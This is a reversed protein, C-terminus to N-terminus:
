LGQQARTQVLYIEKGVCVGEVDQPRSYEGELFDAIRALREGLRVAANRDASLGVRSYDLREAVTGAGASAPKLALSFSACSRLRVEGSKRHATLRYPTGPLSSSALVEGLGVALEVLIEDRDLTMSNATHMIFSVDPRVLEQLLVAMHIRRHDIGAQMRSVAARRTWLSAWVQTIARAADAPAVNVVSEYLGAGALDELDEGNASSRVTLRTDPGFFELISKEITNPVPLRLLLERLRQLLGDLERLPTSPLRMLLEDYERRLDPASELCREMVGFPLALGRPARFLGSREAMELLRAATAAKAGCTEAGAQDLPLVAPERALTVDPVSIPKPAARSVAASSGIEERVSLGDAAVCLHVSKGAFEALNELQEEQQAAAFPIRAQRARVGLHSLHPIPHGLVVGKVDAPIEADGDAFTLLLVLPGPQGEVAALNEARVMTGACEGPVVAEWPPLNLARRASEMGLDVLRSLPFVLHGRVDGESFVKVAHEAIGLERGLSEVRPTFLSNIRDTYTEALHRARALTALIRTLHFSDGPVFDSAWASCESCLASCEEPEILSLALNELTAALLRLLTPWATKRGEGGDEPSLPQPHPPQRGSLIKEGRVGSGEGRFCALPSSSPGGEVRNIAESLLAFAHMELGIDALRLQSRQRPPAQGLKEAIIRRLATLGGLLRTLDAREKWSALFGKVAETVAPDASRGLARLRKELDTANFFESLEEHFIRFERVFEQAFQAGPSTIRKLIEASTALDEPGACRHLKNQLRQKIERKLEQPIDNRHAIDRIRTLPESRRFEDGWSPLVPYIRRLIWGTERNTLRELASEIQWAAEAHHNPRFHRGDEECKLEGTALFRLYIAITALQGPTAAFAPDIFRDRIWQLRERWSRAGKTAEILACLFDAETQEFSAFQAM